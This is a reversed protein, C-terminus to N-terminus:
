VVIFHEPHVSPFSFGDLLLISFFSFFGGRRCQVNLGVHLHYYVVSRFRGYRPCCGVGSRGVCVVGVAM